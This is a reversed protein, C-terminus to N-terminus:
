DHQKAVYEEHAVAKDTEVKLNAKREKQLAAHRTGPTNVAFLSVQREVDVSGCRPCRVSSADGRVLTEFTRGCGRCTYDYLPM